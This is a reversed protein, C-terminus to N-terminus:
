VMSLPTTGELYKFPFIASVLPLIASVPPYNQRQVNQFYRDCVPAVFPPAM